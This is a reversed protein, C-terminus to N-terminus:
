IFVPFLTIQWDLKQHFIIFLKDHFRNLDYFIWGDMENLLNKLRNCIFCQCFKYHNQKDLYYQKILFCIFTDDVHREMILFWVM